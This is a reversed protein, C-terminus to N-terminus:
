CVIVRVLWVDLCSDCRNGCAIYNSLLIRVTLTRWGDFPTDCFQRYVIIADKGYGGIWTLHAVFDVAFRLQYAICVCVDPFSHKWSAFWTNCCKLVNISPQDKNRIIKGNSFRLRFFLSLAMRGMSIGCWNSPQLSIPKDADYIHRGNNLFVISFFLLFLSKTCSASIASESKM